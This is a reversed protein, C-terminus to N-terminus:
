EHAVATVDIELIMEPFALSTIGLLTQAPV